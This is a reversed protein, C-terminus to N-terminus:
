EWRGPLQDILVTDGANISSGLDTDVASDYANYAEYFTKVLPNDTDAPGNIAANAVDAVARQALTVEPSM